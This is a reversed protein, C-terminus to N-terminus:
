LKEDMIFKNENPIEKIKSNIDNLTTIITGFGYMLFSSIIGSIVLVISSTIGSKSSIATYYYSSDAYDAFEKYESYQNISYLLWIGGVIISAWFIFLALKKITSDINEFM